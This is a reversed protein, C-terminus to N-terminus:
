KRCDARRVQRGNKNSWFGLTHGGSGVACYNGFEVTRSDGAALVIGSVPNVPNGEYLQKVDDLLTASHVWNGGPNGETVSYTGPDLGGFQALGDADTKKILAPDPPMLAMPWGQIPFESGDWLGNANPTTSSTGMWTRRKRFQLTRKVKFNDTKSRSHM